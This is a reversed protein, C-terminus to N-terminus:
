DLRTWGLDTLACATLLRLGGRADVAQSATLDTTAYLGQIDPLVNPHAEFGACAPARRWPGAVATAPARPREGWRASSPGLQRDDQPSPIARRRCTPRASRQRPARATDTLLPAFASTRSQSRPRLGTSGWAGERLMFAPSELAVKDDHASLIV